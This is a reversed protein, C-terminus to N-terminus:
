KEDFTLKLKLPIPDSFGGERGRGSYLPQRHLLLCYVNAIWGLGVDIEVVLTRVDRVRSCEPDFRASREVM